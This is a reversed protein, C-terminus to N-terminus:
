GTSARRVVTGEIAIRRDGRRFPVASPNCAFNVIAEVAQEFGFDYSTLGFQQAELYNDFSAVAIENPVRVRRAALFELALLAVPDHVAVWVTARTDSLARLFLPEMAERLAERAALPGCHARLRRAVSQEVRVGRPASGPLLSRVAQVWEDESPPASLAPASAFESLVCTPGLGQALGMRRQDTWSAGPADTFFAAKSHGLTRLLVGMRAGPVTSSEMGVVCVAGRSVTGSVDVRQREDLIVLPYGEGAVHSVLAGPDAFGASVLAVAATPRAAVQASIDRAVVGAGLEGLHRPPITHLQVTLGRRTSEHELRWFFDHNRHNVFVPRGDSDAETVLLLCSRSHAALALGAWAASTDAAQRARSHLARRMTPASVGYHRALEKTSPLPTSPAFTGTLIDHELRRSVAEWRASLRQAVEHTSKAAAERRSAEAPTFAGRGHVVVVAGEEELRRLARSVTFVSTELSQAMARVTPLAGGNAAADRALRRILELCRTFSPAIRTAM